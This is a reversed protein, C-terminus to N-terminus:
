KNVGANGTTLCDKIVSLMLIIQQKKAQKDKIKKINNAQKHVLQWKTM